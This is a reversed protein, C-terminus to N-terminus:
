STGAPHIADGEVADSDGTRGGEGEEEEEEEDDREFLDFGMHLSRVHSERGRRGSWRIRQARRSERTGCGRFM